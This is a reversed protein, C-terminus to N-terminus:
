LARVNKKFVSREIIERKWVAKRRGTTRALANKIAAGVSARLAGCAL